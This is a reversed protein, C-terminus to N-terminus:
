PRAPQLDWRTTNGSWLAAHQFYLAKGNSLQKYLGVVNRAAPEDDLAGTSMARVVACGQAMLAFDGSPSDPKGGGM